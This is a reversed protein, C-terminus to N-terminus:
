GEMARCAQERGEPLLQVTNDDSVQLFGRVIASNLVLETFEGNWNFHTSITGKMNEERADGIVEHQWLHVLLMNVSFEARMTHRQYAKAIMGTKPAFIFIFMFLLGITTTISGAISVTLLHSAWYGLLTAIVGAIPALFFMAWLRKTFYSAMIAPGVLLAVVMISGAVEFAVVVTISVMLMMGYLVTKPKFGSTAAYNPDFIALKLEKYFIFCLIINLLMVGGIQYASMAGYDVGNIELRNLPAFALEGMLVADTDVHVQVSFLSILIVAVSFLFPYIVGIAADIKILKTGALIEVLVVTLLGVIGASLVLIPSDITNVIFFGIIIGLLVSHSIADGLLTMRRLVLLVGPISCCIATICAILIIELQANIM